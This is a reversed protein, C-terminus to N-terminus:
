TELYVSMECSGSSLSYSHIFLIEMHEKCSGTSFDYIGYTIKLEQKEKKKKERLDIVLVNRHKLFPNKPLKCQLGALSKSIHM